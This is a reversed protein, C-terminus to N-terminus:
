TAARRRVAERYFVYIGSGSVIVAGMMTWGDPLDGFVVYGLFTMWVIQTYSYPSLMSAQAHEYARILLLHSLGGVLGLVIVKVWDWPAMPQWIFPAVISILLSGTLASYFLSTAPADTSSLSRTTLTYLAFCLANVIPLFAWPSVIGPGPRIIILVGAFGVLVAAWRRVGVKEGLFVVSLATVFLPAVASISSAEALPMLSISLLFLCSSGFLMISRFVQLGLRGTRFLQLPDSRLLFPLLFALHFIYRGWIVQLVPYTQALHKGLTDMLGFLIIASLLLTIGRATSTGAVSTSVDTSM